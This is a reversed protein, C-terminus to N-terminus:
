RIAIKIQDDPLSCNWTELMEDPVNIGYPIQRSFQMLIDTTLSERASFATCWSHRINTTARRRNISAASYRSANQAQDRRQRAYVHKSLKIGQCAFIMRSFLLRFHERRVLNWPEHVISDYVDCGMDRVERFCPPTKRVTPSDLSLSYTETQIKDVSTRSTSTSTRNSSLRRSQNCSEM